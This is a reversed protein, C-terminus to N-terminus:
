IELNDGRYTSRDRRSDPPKLTRRQGRHCLALLRSSNLTANLSGVRQVLRLSVLALLDERLAQRHCRSRRCVAMEDVRVM